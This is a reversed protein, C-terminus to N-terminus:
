NKVDVLSFDPVELQWYGIYDPRYPYKSYHYRRHNLPLDKKGFITADMYEQLEGPANKYLKHLEVFHKEMNPVDKVSSYYYYLNYHIIHNYQEFAYKYFNKNELENAIKKAQTFNSTECYYILLNCLIIGKEYHTPLLLLADKLKQEIENRFNHELIDIMAFNNLFYYQLCDYKNEDEAEKLITRAIELNGKNANRMARTIKTRIALDSRNKERFAKECKDLIEIAKDNNLYTSYNKQVFYYVLYSKYKENKLITKAYDKATESTSYKMKYYLNIYDCFLTIEPINEYKQRVCVYFQLFDEKKLMSKLALMYMLHSLNDKCFITELKSLAEDIHGLSYLIDVIGLILKQKLKHENSVFNSIKDIQRIVEYSSNAYILHEKIYPLLKLVNFDRLIYYTYILRYLAETSNAKNVLRNYCDKQVTNFAVYATANLKSNELIRISSNNLIIEKKDISIIHYKELEACVEMLLNEDWFGDPTYNIIKLLEDVYLHGRCFLLIYSIYKAQPSLLEKDFIKQPDIEENNNQIFYIILEDINGHFQIYCDQFKNKSIQKEISQEVIKLVHLLDMKKLEIPNSFVSYEKIYDFLDLLHSSTHMEDTTYEFFIILSSYNKLFSQIIRTSEVDIIQFNEFSIIINQQWERFFYRIVKIKKLIDKPIDSGKEFSLSLSFIKCTFEINSIINFHIKNSIIEEVKLYLADVFQYPSAIMSSSSPIKVDLYLLNPYHKAIYEKIFRAKGIGPNSYLLIARGATSIAKKHIHNEFLKFEKNRNLFDPTKM